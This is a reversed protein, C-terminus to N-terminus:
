RRAAILAPFTREWQQRIPTPLDLHPWDDRLQGLSLYDTITPPTAAGILTATFRRRAPPDDFDVDPDGLLGAAVPDLTVVGTLPELDPLTEPLPPLWRWPDGLAAALTITTDTM